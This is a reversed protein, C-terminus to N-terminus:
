RAARGRRAPKEQGGVAEAAEEVPLVAGLRRRVAAYQPDGALNTWEHPDSRHDYLEESGDAYRIYRWHQDRVAHNGRGHTTLAVGDWAAQPDVLLPRVSPGEVHSPIPLGALEALTPYICMFDVAADTRTGPQTIGPAIFALPARTAREWLAFKRWHQKEGLHWGHDSWLVIILRDARGSRDIADALRGIQADLFKNTALYGQVAHKWQNNAVVARHDGEPRAMRVGAPPVDDLDDDKVPPLQISDLPFMDFYERPVYWPLHPKVFGVALFLPQEHKQMLQEAAWTVLRYDGMEEDAVDLPGWDFHAMNLGSISKVPPRPDGGRNFYEHWETQNHDPLGGSGHYIKGGGLVRYGKQMFYRNLTLTDKLPPGYPHSNMFIGTSFPRLGSMLAARSPNCAPAACHANAFLTGRAVLRDLNPTSAQPHGALCGTWDNLDDIAIFLVDPKDAARAESGIVVAALLGGAALEIAASLFSTKM